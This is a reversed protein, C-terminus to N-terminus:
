LGRLLAGVGLAALLKTSPSVHVRRYRRDGQLAPVNGPDDHLTLEDRLERVGRVYGLHRLLADHESRLVPGRLTIVRGECHVEIGGPHPIARGLRARVRAIMVDDDITSERRAMQSLDHAIGHARNTLDHVAVKGRGEIEHEAHVLKDRLRARRARGRAPDLLFMLGAGLAVGGASM